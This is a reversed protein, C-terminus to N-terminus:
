SKSKSAQTMEKMETRWAKNWLDLDKHNIVKMRAPRGTQDGRPNGEREYSALRVIAVVISDSQKKENVASSSEM